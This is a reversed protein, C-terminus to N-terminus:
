QSELERGRSVSFSSYWEVVGGKKAENAAADYCFSSLMTGGERREAETESVFQIGTAWTPVLFEFTCM